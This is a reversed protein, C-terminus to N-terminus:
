HTFQAAVWQNRQKYDVFSLGLRHAEERIIPLDEVYFGSMYLNGGLKLVAKYAAMDALLINRNINAYVRDFPTRGALTAADGQLIEIQSTGNLACNEVANSCAWEDIDIAMLPSAGKMAALIALVATGCGMDLFSLGAVTDELLYELMLSTTEHHGTGFAMKPDIVIDWTAAPYNTHFSSHIVCERGIIIPEFYHKEWEHNWDQGPILEWTYAIASGYLVDPVLEKIQQENFRAAPVYALLGDSCTTFSEFGTDALLAALVDSVTENLPSLTFHVAFYDMALLTPANNFLHLSQLRKGM